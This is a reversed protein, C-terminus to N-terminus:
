QPYSVVHFVIFQYPMGITVFNSEAEVFGFNFDNFYDAWIPVSACAPM